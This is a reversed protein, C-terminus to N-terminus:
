ALGLPLEFKFTAGGDAPPEVWIRGGHAEVVGKAIYLGLGAGGSSKREGQSYRDFLQPIDDPPIGPGTDSVTFLVHEGHQEALVRIAGGQPTFKIANGVLNSLVQFIRERDVSVTMDIAHETIAIQKAEALPRLMTLSERVIESVNEPARRLVFRGAEIKALDLLDSILATMHGVARKIRELGESTEKSHDGGDRSSQKLLAAQSQIVGLPNRLDHSVVAMLDDRARVAQQERRVQRELDIEVATRRLEVAAEQDSPTWPSSRLRVEEKWAAFSRRPHIRMAPGTEVP